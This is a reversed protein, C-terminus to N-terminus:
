GAFRRVCVPVPPAESVLAAAYDPAIELSQFFWKGDTGIIPRGPKGNTPVSFTQLEKYIGIGLAKVYAEKQAWIDFFVGCPNETSQFCAQDEPSFWREAIANMNLNKRRFEIDIGVHRGATVALLTHERSHSLNFELPHNELFPKGNGNRAFRIETPPRDLYKGLIRRLLGRALVFGNADTPRFFRAAREREEPTLLELCAAQEEAHDPLYISWVDIRNEIPELKKKM